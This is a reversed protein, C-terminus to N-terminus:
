HRRRTVRYQTENFCSAIELFWDTRIEGLNDSNWLFAQFSVTM